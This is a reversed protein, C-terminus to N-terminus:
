GEGQECGAEVHRFSRAVGGHRARQAVAQGLPILVADPPKDSARPPTGAAEDVSGLGRQISVMFLVSLTGVLFAVAYLQLMTLGGLAYVTPVTLLLVAPGIDAAIM